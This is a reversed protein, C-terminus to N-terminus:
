SVAYVRASKSIICTGPGLAAECFATILAYTESSEVVAGGRHLMVRNEQELVGDVAKM